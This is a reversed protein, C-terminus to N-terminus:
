HNLIVKGSYWKQNDFFKIFYIGSSYMSLDLEIRSQNKTIYKSILKGSIDALYIENIDGEIEITIRGSTPNPYLKIDIRKAETLNDTKVGNENGLTDNTKAKSVTDTQNLSPFVKVVIKTSDEKIKRNANIIEHAIVPSNTIFTTDSIGNSSIKYDCGPVYCFQYILRNILNNLLEVDYEDTHPKAHADGIQSHDTLFVYTGNTALAISRMLYEMSSANNMNEASAIVPIIKIGKEAAKQTYIQLKNIVEQRLLPQEDMIFFLLRTRANESWNLSDIASKLGEEVLEDGGGDAQQNKIFSITKNIDSTLPSTNTIYSNGNCKYFVSGLSVKIKTFNAKTKNIIDLIDSKLFKIEDEMSGTADVVFAIDVQDPINCDVPIKFVNIGENFFNPNEYNYEKGQYNLYLENKSNYINDYINLWLEAKGSNDTRNSWITKGEATKLVVQADVVANGNKSKVMVSYRTDPSIKWKNRFEKLDTKKIDQWLNWKSFDNIESATLQGPKFNEIKVSKSNEEEFVSYNSLNSSTVTSSSYTADKSILPVKCNVVEFCELTVATEEMLINLIITDGAKIKIDKIIKPKYGIYSVKIDFKGSASFKLKYNGDFDTVAANKTNAVIVNAFPIPEKTDADLVKGKLYATQSKVFSTSLLCFVFVLKLTNLIIKNGQNKM